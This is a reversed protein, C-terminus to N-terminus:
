TLFHGATLLVGLNPVKYVFTLRKDRNQCLDSGSGGVGNKSMWNLSLEGNVNPYEVHDKGKPNRILAEYTNVKEGMTSCAGDM